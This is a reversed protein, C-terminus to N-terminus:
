KDKLLKDYIRILKEITMQISNQDKTKEYGDSRERNEIIKLCLKALIEPDYSGISCNKIGRTQEAVDGVPVSVIPLNCFNAEKIITPSAEHLSTMLLLDVANLYLPMAYHDINDLIIEKIDIAYKGKLIELVKKFLPYNKERRNKLSPFLIKIEDKNWKVMEHARDRPIPRFVNEMIGLPVLEKKDKKILDLDAQNVALICDSLKIALWALFYDKIQTFNERTLRLRIKGEGFEGHLHYIIKAQPFALRSIIASHAYQAHIIDYKIIKACRRLDRISSLYQFRGKETNIFYLHHESGALKLGGFMDKIFAGWYKKKKTPYMNTVHLVIM